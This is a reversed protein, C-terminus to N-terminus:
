NLIETETPKFTLYFDNPCFIGWTGIQVVKLSLLGNKAAILLEDKSSKIIQGFNFNHKKEIPEAKIIKFNVGRFYCYACYFPNCARILADLEYIDKAWNIKFYGNTKPATKFSHIKDQAFSELRKEKQLKDLVEVLAESIMFTTRNFLSGMTEYPTLNFDKQLIINGTDFNEDMFHLTIASKKENNKIIHFYPMGGRYEPLKSPHCNIYGLKTTTLFDSSLKSNYSCVVGIDAQLNKIKEICEKENPSNNFDILNLGKELVYSKFYSYTEHTKKPPIVGVINFKKELLEQLCVMAMDPIGVFIIKIKSDM